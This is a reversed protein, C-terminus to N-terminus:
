APWGEETAEALLQEVRKESVPWEKGGGIVVFPTRAEHWVCFRRALVYLRSLLAWTVISFFLRINRM